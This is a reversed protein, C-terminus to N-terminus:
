CGLLLIQDIKADDVYAVDAVTQGCALVGFVLGLVIKKMVTDGGKKM